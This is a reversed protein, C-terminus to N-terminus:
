RCRVMESEGIGLEIRKSKVDELFRLGDNYYGATPAIDPLHQKWFANYRRMLAERLYKSLMSAVAVSMCGAEAKERFMLRVRRGNKSLGYESHGDKERVVELAWDEFMLRLLRGYHERGGQRDCVITLGQDAFNRLLEDLHIAAISFLADSKNRTADFMRNLERELLVRASLVVCRTRTRQMEARLANSFLRISMADQDLPFVEDDAATYWRYTALSERVHPAVAGLLDDFCGCADSRWATAITLISRELEKLGISPSYVQKSDNVHLKRGGRSRTKGVLKRLRNWLCPLADGGPPQVSADIEDDAIEFAACGVVLPGLLPGYGAEDIGALIM